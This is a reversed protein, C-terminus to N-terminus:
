LCYKRPLKTCTISGSFKRLKKGYVNRINYKRRPKGISPAIGCSCPVRYIGPFNNKPLRTKNKTTLQIQLNKNSKFM